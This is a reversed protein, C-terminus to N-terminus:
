MHANEDQIVNLMVLSYWLFEFFLKEQLSQVVILKVSGNKGWSNQVYSVYKKIYKQFIQAKNGFCKELFM